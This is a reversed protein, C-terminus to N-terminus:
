CGTNYFVIIIIIVIAIVIIIVIIINWRAWEIDLHSFISVAWLILM